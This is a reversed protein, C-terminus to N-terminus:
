APSVSRTVAPPARVEPPKSPASIRVSGSHPLGVDVGQDILASDAALRLHPLVPLGGDAERPVDWGETSVSQFDADSPTIGLDWSNYQSDTGDMNETLTGTYAVNNRLNGRGVAAGSEDIGLM